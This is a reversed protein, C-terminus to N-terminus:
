SGDAICIRLEKIQKRAETEIFSNSGEVISLSEKLYQIAKDTINLNRYVNGMNFLWTAENQRDEIEKSITLAQEYYEIAKSDQGVSHYVIGIHGLSYGIRYKNGDQLSVNLAKEYCEIAEKSQGLSHYGAGINSLITWENIYDNIKMYIALSQEYYEIAKKFQGLDNYANGINCLQNGESPKDGIQHFINFAKIFYEIAEIIKGEMTYTIGLEGLLKAQNQKNKIKESIDIAKKIYEIAKETQGINRFSLGINGLIQIESERDGINKSIFLAQKYFNIAELFQGSQCLKFILYLLRKIIKIAKLKQNNIKYYNCIYTSVKIVQKIESLNYDLLTEAHIVIKEIEFSEMNGFNDDILENIASLSKHIISANEIKIMKVFESILRHIKAGNGNLEILSLSKHLEHIANEIQVNSANKIMNNLLRFPVYIPAIVSMTKLISKAKPSTVDWIIEFTAVINKEYGSPFKDAFLKAFNSLSEKERKKNIEQIFNEVSMDTKINLIIKAFELATAFGGLLIVIKIAERGFKREGLNLLYLGEDISLLKLLLNKLKKIKLSEDYFYKASMNNPDIKLAKYCEITAENFNGISLWGCARMAYIQAWSSNISIAISSTQFATEAYGLNLLAVLKSHWSELDKQNNKLKNEANILLKEMEKIHFLSRSYIQQISSNDPNNTLLESAMNFSEAYRNLWYLTEAKAINLNLEDSYKEIGFNVCYLAEHWRGEKLFFRVIGNYIKPGIVDNLFCHLSKCYAKEAEKKCDLNYYLINAKNHWVLGEINNKAIPELLAEDYKKLANNYEGQQEYSFALSLLTNTKTYSDNIKTKWEFNPKKINNTANTLLEWFGYKKQMENDFLLINEAGEQAFIQADTFNGSCIAINTILMLTEFYNDAEKKCKKFENSAFNLLLKCLDFSKEIEDFRTLMEIIYLLIKYSQGKEDYKIIPLFYEIFNAELKMLELAYDKENNQLFSTICWFLISLYDFRHNIIFESRHKYLLILRHSSDKAESIQNAKIQADALMFTNKALEDLWLTKDSKQLSYYIDIVEKRTKITNEWDNLDNYCDSLVSLALVLDHIYDHRWKELSRYEKCSKNALDLAKENYGSKRLTEAYMYHFKALKDFYIDPFDEALNEYSDLLLEGYMIAEEYNGCATLTRMLARYCGIIRHHDDSETENEILTLSERAAKLGAEYENLSLLYDSYNILAISLAKKDETNRFLRIAEDICIWGNDIIGTPNKTSIIFDYKEKFECFRPTGRRRLYLTILASAFIQRTNNNQKEQYLKYALSAALESEDTSEEVYGLEHLYTSYSRLMNIYEIRDDFEESKNFKKLKKRTIILKLPMLSSSGWYPIKEDILNASDIDINEDALKGLIRGIPGGDGELAVDIAEEILGCFNDNLVKELMWADSPKQLSLRNYRRLIEKKNNM